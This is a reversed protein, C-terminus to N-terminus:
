TPGACYYIILANKDKPLKDIHKDFEVYWINIAGPIHGEHYRAPPRCDIILGKGEDAIKKVEEAKIVKAPDVSVLPKAAISKAYLQGDKEEYIISIEKGKPLKNIPQTWNKLTTNEDFKFTWVTGTDVQILEAKASASVLNGWVENNKATHCGPATCPKAIKPKETSLVKVSFVLSCALFAVLLLTRLRKM